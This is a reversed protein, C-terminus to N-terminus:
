YLFTVIETVDPTADSVAFTNDCIIINVVAGSVATEVVYKDTSNASSHGAFWAITEAYALGDNYTAPYTLTYDGVGNRTVTPAFSLTDGWMTKTRVATGVVGAGKTTWVLIARPATRTLQAVDEALRQYYAAALETTPDDVPEADSLSQGAGYQEATKRDL